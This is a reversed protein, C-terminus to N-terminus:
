SLKIRRLVLMGGKSKQNGSGGARGSTLSITDNFTIKRNDGTLTADGGDGGIGLAGTTNERDQGPEGGNGAELIISEVTIDQTLEASVKGGQGGSGDRKEDEFGTIASSVTVGLTNAEESTLDNKGSMSDSGGLGGKGGTPEKGSDGYNPVEPKTSTILGGAGNGGLGTLSGGGGGGGSLYISQAMVPQIATLSFISIGLSGALATAGLWNSRFKRSLCYM